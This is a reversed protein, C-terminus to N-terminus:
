EFQVPVWGRLSNIMWIRSAKALDNITIIRESIKGKELLAERLTGALLGCSVPPTFYGGNIEVVINGITFETIENNENWLLVDFADPFANKYQDYIQRNTTKHYFFRNNRDIANNALVVTQMIDKVFPVHPVSEIETRGDRFLLLRARRKQGPYSRQHADLAERIEDERYPYDFYEASARLRHLHRNLYTYNRQDWHMTELLAFDPYEEDLVAAKALIEEYEDQATSDWTIGGGVGYRATGRKKDIVVTRIPVSFYVQKQPTLYGIAGCYVGRPSKEEEAIINMTSIKPAGTVSGCPFLSRFIDALTTTEPVTAQVTSTMQFVTPYKTIEFLKPVRVSGFDAIKGLDNRLLDVIMVNEARNKESLYLERRRTADELAMLGRKATGKMPQTTLTNKEWRFFLEPSASLIRYSGINLYASFGGQQADSLQEYFAFDDGTFETELAITYNVQYTNGAKIETKIRDISQRYEKQNTNAVWAGIQFPDLHHLRNVAAKEARDFLGFWLLPLDAAEKVRYAPDFAPAAEYALFGAAYWGHNVADWVQELAPIVQDLADARIIKAPRTFRLYKGTNNEYFQFRLEIQNHDDM